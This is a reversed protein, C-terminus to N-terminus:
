FKSEWSQILEGARRTLHFVRHRGDNNVLLLGADALQQIDDKYFAQDGYKIPISASQEPHITYLVRGTLADVELVQTAGSQYIDRLFQLAHPSLQTQPRVTRTVADLGGIMNAIVAIGQDVQDFRKLLTERDEALLAKIGIAIRGNQELIRIIADHRNAALWTRFEDISQSTRAQRTSLFQGLLGVIEALATSGTSLMSM